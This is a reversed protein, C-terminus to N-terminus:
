KSTYPLKDLSYKTQYGSGRKTVIFEYGRYLKGVLFPEFMGYLSESMTSFKANAAVGNLRDVTFELVKRVGPRGTLPDTIDRDAVIHDTFHMREPTGAELMVINGLPM